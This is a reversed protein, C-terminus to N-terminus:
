AAKASSKAGEIGVVVTKFEGMRFSQETKLELKAPFVIKAFDGLVAPDLDMEGVEMGYGTVRTKGEAGEIPVMAYLRCMDFPNGSAKATGEIRKVGVVNFQM